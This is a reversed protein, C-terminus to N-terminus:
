VKEAADEDDAPLSLITAARQRLASRVREDQAKM